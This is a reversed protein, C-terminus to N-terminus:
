MTDNGVTASTNTISSPLTGIPMNLNTLNYSPATVPATTNSWGRLTVNLNTNGTANNNFPGSWTLIKLTTGTPLPGTYGLLNSLDITKNEGPKIWVEGYYTSTTGNKNTANAFVVDIHTWAQTNNNHFDLKTGNATVNNTNATGGMLMIAAAAAIIVVVVAAIIIIISGTKM